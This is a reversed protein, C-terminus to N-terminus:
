PPPPPSLTLAIPISDNPSLPTATTAANSCECQLLFDDIVVGTAQPCTSRALQSFRAAAQVMGVRPEPAPVWQDRDAPNNVVGGETPPAILMSLQNVSVNRCHFEASQRLTMGGESDTNYIMASGFGFFSQVSGAGGGAVPLISPHVTGLFSALRGQQPQQPQQPQPRAGGMAAAALVVVLPARHMM